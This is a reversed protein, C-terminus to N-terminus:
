QGYDIFEFQSDLVKVYADLNPQTWPLRPLEEWVARDAPLDDRHGDDATSHLETTIVRDTHLSLAQSM